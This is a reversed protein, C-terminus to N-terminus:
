RKASRLEELLPELDVQYRTKDERHVYVEVSKGVIVPGPHFAIPAAEFREQSTEGPRSAWCVVVYEETSAGQQKRVSEVVGKLRLITGDAMIRRIESERHLKSNSEEERRMEAYGAHESTVRHQAVFFAGISGALLLFGFVGYNLFSTWFTLEGSGAIRASSPDRPDYLVKFTSGTPYTSSKDVTLRHKAGDAASFEVLLRYYVDKTPRGEDDKSRHERRETEVVRGQTTVGVRSLVHSRYGSVCGYFLLALGLIGFFAFAPWESPILYNEPIKLIM